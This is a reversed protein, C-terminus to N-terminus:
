IPDIHEIKGISEHALLVVGRLSSEGTESITLERGLIDSIMRTWVPSDRLAGGSAVIEKVKVVSNLQKLIEAFRYAVSEMSAQLIDVSDNSATLGNISGRADERYLTSREGHFYPSVTLGHTGIPRIAIQEEADKPLKLNKKMWAYLNGGDSLAGGLIVRKRDIRYCWLGGPIKAPPEGEYAVRMAGSTGVMLAAKSRTVCGSGINDAAGDAITPFWKADALRPWRKAYKKNLEFTQDERAVSPLMATKIKLYKLLESDWDCKRIDFIGTGSAMSVSTALEDFFRLGILDSFSLFIAARSFADPFESRLWMLKAPWFSSHFRAGTRNHVVTEDFRKRLVDTFARSRTDAWGLVKPTYKGNAEVGVLSHWFSCSAVYGIEGVLQSTKALIQDIASEIQEIASKTDIEFGGDPTVNFSRPIKVSSRPIPNADADYLAARVSSSGIDLTLTLTKNM